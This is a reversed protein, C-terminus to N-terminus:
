SVLVLEFRDDAKKSLIFRQNWNSFSGTLYVVGSPEKWEFLTPIKFNTYDVSVNTALSSCNTTPETGKNIFDKHVSPARDSDHNCVTRIGKYSSSQKTIIELFSNKGTDDSVYNANKKTFNINQILKKKDESSLNHHNGM